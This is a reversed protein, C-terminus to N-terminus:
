GIVLLAIVWTIPVWFVLTLAIWDVIQRVPDPLFRLPYNAGKLVVVVTPEVASWVSRAKRKLEVMRETPEPPADAPPAPDRDTKAPKPTAAESPAPAAAPPTEGPDAPKTEAAPHVVAPANEAEQVLTAVEEFVGQLVDDVSEYGGPVLGDLDDAIAQDIEALDVADTSASAPEPPPPASATSGGPGSPAVNAPGTDPGDAAELSSSAPRDAD